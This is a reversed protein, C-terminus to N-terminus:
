WECHKHTPKFSPKRIFHGAFLVAFHNAGSIFNKNKQENPERGEKDTVYSM